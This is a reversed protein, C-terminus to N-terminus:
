AKRCVFMRNQGFAGFPSEKEASMELSLKTAAQVLPHEYDLKGGNTAPALVYLALDHLSGFDEVDILELGAAAIHPRIKDEDFFLNFEAPKRPTLGLMERCRNQAGHTTTSNEIMVLHGGPRLRKALASIGEKQLDVTNLNILCRDTFVIDYADSLTSIASLKLIDGVFFRTRGSVDGSRANDAAAAIMEDIFDVGDFRAQGFAKALHVCNVGNGCGVELINADPKHKLLTTFRRTLADLEVAKATWTKTTARLDAGYSSAWNTWHTRIAERDM